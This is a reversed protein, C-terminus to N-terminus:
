KGPCERRIRILQGAIDLGGQPYGSSTGSRPLPRRGSSSTRVGSSFSTSTITRWWSRATPLSVCSKATAPTRGEVITSSEHRWTILRRVYAAFGRRSRLCRKQRSGVCFTEFGGIRCRFSARDVDGAQNLFIESRARPGGARSRNITIRRAM